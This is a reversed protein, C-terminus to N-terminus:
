RADVAVLVRPGVHPPLPPSRHVAGRDESGPWLRGKLLAVAFAPLTQIAEPRRLLGSEEDSLGGSGAGLKSRDVDREELWQTGAGRYTCLLRAKVNDVHFRPCQVDTVVDFRVHAADTRAIQCLLAALAEIDRMLAERGRLLPLHDLALAQRPSWPQNWGRGLLGEQVAADLYHQIATHAARAFWCLQVGPDVWRTLAAALGAQHGIADCRALESALDSGATLPRRM